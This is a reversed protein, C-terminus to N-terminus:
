RADVAAPLLAASTPDGVRTALAAKVVALVAPVVAALAATLLSRELGFVPAALLYGLFTQVATKAARAALDVTFPLGVPIALATVSNSVVALAAPITAIAAVQAAALNLPGSVLLLGILAELYTALVREALDIAAVVWAPRPDYIPVDTM